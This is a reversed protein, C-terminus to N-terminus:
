QSNLIQFEGRGLKAIMGEECLMALNRSLAERSCGIEQAVVRQPVDFAAVGEENTNSALYNLVRNRLPEARIELLAQSVERVRGSLHQLLGLAIQPNTEVLRTFADRSLVLLRSNREAIVTASRPMQELIAMEGIVEGSFRTALTVMHGQDSISAVRLKGSMVVFVEFGEAGQHFLTQGKEIRRVTCHDAIEVLHSHSLNAFLPM